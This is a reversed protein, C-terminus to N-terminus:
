SFNYIYKYISIYMFICIPNIYTNVSIYRTYIYVCIYYMYM